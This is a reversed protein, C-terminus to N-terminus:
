GVGLKTLKRVSEERWMPLSKAHERLGSSFSGKVGVGNRIVM